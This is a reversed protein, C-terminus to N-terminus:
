GIPLTDSKFKTRLWDKFAEAGPHIEKVRKQEAIYHSQGLPVADGVIKVKPNTEIANRAFREIVVARGLDSVALECAAVSTDVM